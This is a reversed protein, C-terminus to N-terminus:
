GTEVTRRYLHWTAHGLVPLLVLLGLFLPLMALFLTVAIVFAWVRLVLRNARLARMSTIIATIFDVDRDVLMPLSFLTVAYFAYAILAGVAGGVLLMAIGAETRFVELSESGIGSEAMFVAFITHAIIIWFSLGVFIIGGMLILQEDGRGRLAGLVAGWTVPLGAERRRSVEYLGVAAFPAFLPFAAASPILWVAEGRVLLAHSLALGAIVYIAGFFLGHASCARFDAWGEALAARLDRLSLERLASQGNAAHVQGVM